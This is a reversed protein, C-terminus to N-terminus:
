RTGRDLIRIDGNLTEFGLEPGGAGVRLGISRDTKYIFKEGRRVAAPPRAALGNTDFDSYITGNFTNLRLDASLARPFTVTLDGNVSTFSSPARPYDAYAVDIDANVTKVEGAGAVDVMAISGNVNHVEYGGRVGAIRIHGDNVTRVDVHAERPVSVVFDYQVVYGPERRHRRRDGCCDRFLGDVYLRVLSTEEAVELTVDRRAAELAEASRAQDTRTVSLRVGPGDHVAVDISGFVNDIEVRSGRGAALTLAREDHETERIPWDSAAPRLTGSAVAVCISLALAIRM